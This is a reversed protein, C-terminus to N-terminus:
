FNLKLVPSIIVFNDWEWKRADRSLITSYKAELNLWNFIRVFGDALLTNCYQVSVGWAEGSNDKHVYGVKILPDFYNYTKPFQLESYGPDNPKGTSGKTGVTVARVSHKGAGAQVYLGKLTEGFHYTVWGHGSFSLYFLSDKKPASPSTQVYDTRYQPDNAVLSLTALNPDFASFVEGGVGLRGSSKPNDLVDLNQQLMANFGQTGQLKREKIRFGGGTQSGFPTMGAEGLQFNFGLILHTNEQTLVGALSVNGPLWFPYGIYDNGLYAGFGFGSKFVMDGGWVAANIRAYQINDQPSETSILTYEYGSRSNIKAYLEEGLIKKITPTGYIGVSEVVIRLLEVETNLEGENISAPKQTILLDANSSPSITKGSKRLASIVRSRISRDTIIWQVLENQRATDISEIASLVTRLAKNEEQAQKLEEGWNVQQPTGGPQQAVAAGFSLLLASLVFFRRVMNMKMCDLDINKVINKM